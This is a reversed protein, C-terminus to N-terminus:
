PTARRSMAWRQKYPTSRLGTATSRALTEESPQLVMAGKSVLDPTAASDIVPQLAAHLDDVSQAAKVAKNVKPSLKRATRDQLWKARRGPAEALLAELDVATPAGQKKQARIAVSRGTATELRFGMMAEYVSGIEQVDLARFSIREGDLVVLKELARFITGDPVLPPEIREHIQRAGGGTRGELFPYRGPDFLVGHRKPLRLDGAEAGDHVMRFLVLLQAWAGYRQDMTDPYLAADERLREHLGALSYHRLWTEDAPLMDREEAYLLFVMRLIVTLLARYVEDPNDQLPARLLTGQSRDHAAQFGRQLEYLAHLVQEALRESVENQYKRSDALLAALREQRPLALLRQEDLLLRLAASIPRGATQVMDAVRFDLWGSSEGRPASVLRLAHGNVLLGAPVHTARLLRELRGHPSAELHGGDQSVRDFDQGPEIVRVLLQWPAAGDQPDLERVAYDPRLTEGYEPLPHELEAPIPCEKTGAYGKPSFSWDLVSQAFTQFDPLRLDEESASGYTAAPERVRDAQAEDGELCARLLRQGEADHRELIAGAKVLAPASVVLGTPRVFGLWELHALIAPDVKAKAM